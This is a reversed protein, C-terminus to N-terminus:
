ATLVRSRGWCFLSLVSPKNAYCTEEKMSWWRSAPSMRPCFDWIKLNLRLSLHRCPLWSVSDAACRARVFGRLGSVKASRGGERRRPWAIGVTIYRFVAPLVPGAMQHQLALSFSCCSGQVLLWWSREAGMEELRGTKDAAPHFRM